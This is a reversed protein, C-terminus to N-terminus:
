SPIGSVTGSSSTKTQGHKAANFLWPTGVKASLPSEQRDGHSSSEGVEVTANASESDGTDTKWCASDRLTSFHSRVPLM